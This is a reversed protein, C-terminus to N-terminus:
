DLRIIRGSGPASFPQSLGKLYAMLADPIGPGDAPNTGRTLVTFNDGGGALFKNVTVSYLAARDIPVGERRVEVVRSGLPRAGDWTYSFGSIQLVRPFPQGHWQQELLDYLQQGTLNLRVLQSNTFPYIAFLAGWTVPGADLDARIGGPNTVAFDTGMAARLADAVLDGLLSEGARNQSKSLPVAAEAVVRNVLLAVKDEARKQLTAAEPDPTLGPGSDAWTTVVASSTAVVDNTAPDIALDIDAYATGASFAQTVLIEKGHRNKLVANIFTHTHGSVVVDVEDDLRAVIDAIAGSVPGGTGGAGQFPNQEGGQHILAIVARVHRRQLEPIYRNISEAEDLFKLGKVGSASVVGPTDKLVAGIFAIPIGRVTKIVYPPLLLEGSRGDVVNAAVTPYRAGRWPDDLFPGNPHNGGGLLRLLEGAGEDFEHNGVTGVVNCGPATREDYRCADNAFLNVFTIAPENQLLASAAPSAGVLDGAHVVFNRGDYGTLANRLYAALVGASGVPRGEVKKGAPLQGHFDNVALLKVTVLGEPGTGAPIGNSRWRVPKAAEVRLAASDVGAAPRVVAPGARLTGQGLDAVCAGTLGAMAALLVASFVIRVWRGLCATRKM